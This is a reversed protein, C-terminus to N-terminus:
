TVRADREVTDSVDVCRGARGEDRDIGPPLIGNRHRCAGIRFGRGGLDPGGRKQVATQEEQLALHGIALAFGSSGQGLRSAERM